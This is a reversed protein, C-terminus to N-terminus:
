SYFVTLSTVDTITAHMDNQFLLGEAPLRLYMPAVMSAMTNITAKIPGSGGGDRLVVSGAGAAPVILVARARSRPINAANQDLVQGTATIPASALIDTQM